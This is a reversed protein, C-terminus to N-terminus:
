QEAGTVSQRQAFRTAVQQQQDLQDRLGSPHDDALTRFMGAEYEAGTLKRRRTAYWGSLHAGDRGRWIHWDPFDRALAALTDADTDTSM